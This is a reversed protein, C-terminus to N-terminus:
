GLTPSLRARAHYCGLGCRMLGHPGCPPQGAEVSFLTCVPHQVTSLCLIGEPTEKRDKRAGTRGINSAGFAAATTDRCLTSTGDIASDPRHVYLLLTGAASRPSSAPVAEQVCGGQLVTCGTSPTFVLQTGTTDNSTVTFNFKVSSSSSPYCPLGVPATVTVRPCQLCCFALGPQCQRHM